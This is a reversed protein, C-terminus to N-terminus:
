RRNRRGLGIGLLGVGILAYTGPEPISTPAFTQYTAIAGNLTSTNGLTYNLANTRIVLIRTTEGPDIADGPVSGNGFSFGVTGQSPRNALSPAQMLTANQVFNSKVPSGGGSTGDIDQTTFGVDTTFAAFSTMTIRSVSDISSSNNMFQYYFDLQNNLSNRYVASRLTGTYLIQGFSDQGTVSYTVGDLFTGLNSITAWNDLVAACPSVGACQGTAIIGASLPASLAFTGLLFFLTKNINV